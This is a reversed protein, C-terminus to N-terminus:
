DRKTAVVHHGRVEKFLKHFAIESQHGSHGVWVGVGGTEADGCVVHGDEEGVVVQHIEGGGIEHVVLDGGVFGCLDHHADEGVWVLKTRDSTEGDGSGKVIEPGPETSSGSRAHLLPKRVRRVFVHHGDLVLAAIASRFHAGRDFFVDRETTVGRGDFDGVRTDFIAQVNVDGVLGKIM